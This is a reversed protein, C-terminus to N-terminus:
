GAARFRPSCREEDWCGNGELIKRLVRRLARVDRDSLHRGMADDVAEGYRDFSRSVVARGSTTIRAYVIRRDSAPSFRAVHGLEVLRDVLRTMGSKSLMLLSALDIMRLRGQDAGDLRGLVELETPSLGANAQLTAELAELVVRQTQVINLWAALQENQV